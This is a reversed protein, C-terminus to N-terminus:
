KVKTKFYGRMNKTNKPSTNCTYDVFGFISDNKKYQSKDLILNEKEVPYEVFKLENKITKPNINKIFYKGDFVQIRIGNGYYGNNNNITINVTDNIIECSTKYNTFYISNGSSRRSYTNTTLSITQLVSATRTSSEIVENKYNRIEPFQSLKKITNQEKIKSDVTITSFEKEQIKKQCNLLFMVILSVLFYKM